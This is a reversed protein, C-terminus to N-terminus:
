KKRGKMRGEYTKKGYIENKKKRIQGKIINRKGCGKM